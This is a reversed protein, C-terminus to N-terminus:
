QPTGGQYIARQLVDAALKAGHVSWHDDCAHYLMAPEDHAMFASLLDIVEANPYGAAFTELALTLPPNKIGTELAHRIDREVPIIVMHVPRGNAHRIINGLAWQMRQWGADSFTWYGSLGPNEEARETTEQGERYSLLDDIYRVVNATYTFNTITQRFARLRQKRWEKETNGWVNLFAPDRYEIAFDGDPGEIAYPRYRQGHVQAGFAPDDDEFDNNPLITLIVRDHEFRAALNEYQLWEQVPGFNGSTGFNLHPIGTRDELVNTFREKAELGFGEVFSDGLVVTRPGDATLARPRDRMGHDNTRYTVRFCSTKHIYTAGPLHWIGFAPNIDAWFPKLGPLEYNPAPAPILGTEVSAWAFVEASVLLALVFVLGRKFYTWLRKM